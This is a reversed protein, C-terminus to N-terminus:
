LVLSIRIIKQVQQGSYTQWLTNYINEVEALYHM